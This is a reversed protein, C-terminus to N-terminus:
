EEGKHKKIIEKYRRESAEMEEDNVGNIQNEESEFEIFLDALDDNTFLKKDEM